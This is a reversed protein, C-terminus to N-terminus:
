RPVRYKWEIEASEININIVDHLVYCIKRIHFKVFLFM